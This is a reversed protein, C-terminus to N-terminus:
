WEVAHADHHHARHAIRHVDQRDDVRDLPMPRRRVDRPDQLWPRRGEDAPMGRDVVDHQEVSALADPSKEVHPSLEGCAVEVDHDIQLDVELSSDDRRERPRGHLQAEVTRASPVEVPQERVLLDRWRCGARAPPM